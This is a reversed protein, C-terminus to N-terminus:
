QPQQSSWLAAVIDKKNLWENNLESRVSQILSAWIAKCEDGKMAEPDLCKEKYDAYNSFVDKSAYIALKSATIINEKNSGTNILSAEDILLSAVQQANIRDHDLMNIANLSILTLGTGTISSLLSVLITGIVSTWSM